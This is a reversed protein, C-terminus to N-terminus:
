FASGVNYGLQAGKMAGSPGGSFFGGVGGIGAGLLGGLGGQKQQKEVLQRDYPRQNLLDGSLGMLDMIAQRQLGQRRSALDQAFNSAAATATNQFGSSKRGGMGMGSFRSALQGQLGQFQRMAPAEMEQFQSEDGGALKSLYSEPGVNSFLQRFLSMQEPTFQAMQGTKYGKPIRDGAWKGTTSSGGMGTFGSLSSSM